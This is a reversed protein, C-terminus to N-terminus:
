RGIGYRRDLEDFIRRNNEALIGPLSKQLDATAGRADINYVPAITTGGMKDNPVISGNSGPIFLEPGREGVLYGKGGMVPGGMAKQGTAFKAFSGLFGGSSTFPNFFFKLLQSAAFEAVMRRITDIFGKLMGKLGNQFPDFLFDAFATQMNKAAQEAFVSIQDITQGALDPIDAQIKQLEEYTTNANDILNM